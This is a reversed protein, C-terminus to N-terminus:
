VGPHLVIELVAPGEPGHGQDLLRVTGDSRIESEGHHDGGLHRPIEVQGGGAVHRAGPAVGVLGRVADEGVRDLPRQVQFHLKRVPGAPEPVPAAPPDHGAAHRLRQFCLPSETGNQRGSPRGTKFPNPVGDDRHQTIQQRGEGLGAPDHGRHVQLHVVAVSVAPVPVSPQEGQGRDLSVPQGTVRGIQLRRLSIEIVQGLRQLHHSFVVAVAAGAPLGAAVRRGLPPVQLAPPLGGGVPPVLAVPRGVDGSEDRGTQPLAEQRRLLLPLGQGHQLGRHVGHPAVDGVAVQEESFSTEHVVIGAHLVPPLLDLGQVRGVVDEAPGREPLEPLHQFRRLFFAPRPLIQPRAHQPGQGQCVAAGNGQGLGQIKNQVFVLVFGPGTRFGHRPGNPGGVALGGVAPVHGGFLGVVQVGLHDGGQQVRPLVKQVRVSQASEVGQVSLEPFRAAVSPGPAFPKRQRRIHPGRVRGHHGPAPVQPVIVVANVVIHGIVRAVGPDDAHQPRGLEVQPDHFPDQGVTIEVDGRLLMQIVQSVLAEVHIPQAQGHALADFPVVGAEAMDQPREQLARILRQRQLGLQHLPLPFGEALM